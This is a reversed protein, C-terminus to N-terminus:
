GFAESVLKDIREAATFDAAKFRNRMVAVAVGTDIDGYAVSGSSGVMGFTSGPRSGVGPRFPSYGLAWEAPVGMVEDTGRYTIAAMLELRTKSVLTVGKIHGLLGAYMRAVGAATMTGGSPIDSTLVDRRNAFEANQAIGLPIAKGVPSDPDPLPPPPGEPAVQRAVRPLLDPSVGFLVDDGVGLPGTVHDRLLASIGRGTVRRLTEGLLFGFTQAHYGYRTGPEWWPEADAIVKCMHEWDCLDAVTTDAPLGPVGATHCLVHRLTVAEKGHSGFAPWVEALRLDYDVDGREALVHGVASTVGKAASVAYFLTDATVPTGTTPDALGSVVDVVVSGNHIVAVQLGTEAGSGVLEDAATQVVRQLDRESVADDNSM